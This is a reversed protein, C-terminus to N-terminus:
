SPTRFAPTLPPGELRREVDDPLASALATFAAGYAEVATDVDVDTHAYSIFNSGNFLIGRKLMEQQVLSKAPLTPGHPDPERVSVITWPAAGTCSVWEHLGSREIAEAVGEQLRRGLRWLHEHVPEGVLVDLTARAAALSLTEGGHTGSFFVDKLTDMTAAPGALASIPMGNGLAKGFCVLDAQVGFHEQAGGPALRFGTIVEDFVILAGHLHALDIMEQLLGPAPEALGVPECVVCAVQRSRRELATALAELDGSAVPEVLSRVAAPVGRRRATSGIYWDHWGHYGTTIVRERGTHARALRVAASTADSGSKAFRVREAGPVLGAIREAVELELRHPLTFTIGSRLQAAIAADVAPHCHGLIIPGLAMPLDLYRNGDVDWVHAGRAREVYNPAVGQLWQTPGKSLTQSAGPILAHARELLETSRRLSRAAVPAPTRV